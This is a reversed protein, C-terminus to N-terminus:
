PRIFVAHKGAQLRDMTPGQKSTTNEAESAREYKQKCTTRIGHRVEVVHSGFTPKLPLWVSSANDFCDVTRVATSSWSATLM